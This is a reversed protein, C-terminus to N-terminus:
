PGSEAALALAERFRDASLEAVVEFHKVGLNRVYASRLDGVGWRTRGTMEAPM